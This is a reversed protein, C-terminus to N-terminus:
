EDSETRPRYLSLNLREPRYQGDAGILRLAGGSTSITMNDTRENKSPEGPDSLDIRINLFNEGDITMELNRM